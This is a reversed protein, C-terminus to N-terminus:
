FAKRILPMTLVRLLFHCTVQSWEKIRCFGLLAAWKTLRTIYQLVVISLLFIGIMTTSKPFRTMALILPM